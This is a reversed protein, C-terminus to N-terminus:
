PGYQRSKVYLAIKGPNGVALDEHWLSRLRVRVQNYWSLSRKRRIVQSPDGGITLRTNNMRIRVDFFCGAVYDLLKTWHNCTIPCALVCCTCHVIWPFRRKMRIIVGWSVSRFIIGVRKGGVRDDVVRSAHCCIRGWVSEATSTDIIASCTCTVCINLKGLPLRCCGFLHTSRRWCHFYATKSPYRCVRSLLSTNFNTTNILQRCIHTCPRLNICTRDTGSQGAMLLVGVRRICETLMRYISWLGLLVGSSPSVSGTHPGRVCWHTRVHAAVVRRCTLNWIAIISWHTGLM